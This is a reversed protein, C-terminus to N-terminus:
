GPAGSWFEDPLPLSRAPRSGTLELGEWGPEMLSVFDPYDSGPPFQWEAIGRLQIQGRARKVLVVFPLREYLAAAMDEPRSVDARRAVMGLASRLRKADSPGRFNWIQRPANSERLLPAISEPEDARVEDLIMCAPEKELAAGIQEGFTMGPQDGRPWRVALGAVADPLRLEGAREVAVTSKSQPLTQALVSLLTTKGSETDGVIVIGHPSAILARLITAAQDTLYESRVLDDLTPLAAPHVRIDITLYVTVPPAMFNVCIPRGAVEFGVEAFPQDESLEARGSLLLRSVIQNLHHFDEFIPDLPVLEGHGYRVSIKDIGELAITTVRTDAILADLPGYGFLEGYVRRILAAQEDPALRVSEVALVYHVTDRLLKLRETEGSAEQLAPSDEPYEDTFASVIREVLAARSVMRGGLRSPVFDPERGEDAKKRARRVTRHEATDRKGNSKSADQM